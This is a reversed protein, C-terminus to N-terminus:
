GAYNGALDAADVEWYELNEDRLWKKDKPPRKPATKSGLANVFEIKGPYVFGSEEYTFDRTEEDVELRVGAIQTNLTPM